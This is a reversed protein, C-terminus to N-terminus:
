LDNEIQTKLNAYDDASMGFHQQLTERTWITRDPLRVIEISEPARGWARDLITGAARARAIDSESSEMIAMLTKLAKLAYRACQDQGEITRQNPTGLQRGGAKVRKTLSRNPRSVRVRAAAPM